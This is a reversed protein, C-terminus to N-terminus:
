PMGLRPNVRRQSRPVLIAVMVEEGSSFGMRVEGDKEEKDIGEFPRSEKVLLRFDLAEVDLDFGDRDGM